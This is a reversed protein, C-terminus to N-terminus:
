GRPRAEISQKLRARLAPVDRVITAGIERLVGPHAEAGPGEAMITIASPLLSRLQRLERPLVRDSPIPGLSLVVVRVGIHGAIEAIAQASLGPGVYTVRWGEAAGAAAAALAGLDHPQESPSTVLLEPAELPSAAVEMMRYLARRLISLALQQQSDRLTGARVREGIRQWLPVVLTDLFAEASLAVVARRLHADLAAGDYREVADLFGQLDVAATVGPANETLVLAALSETSLSAVQGISRGTLTARALLRLREIDADSYLRRGNETRV